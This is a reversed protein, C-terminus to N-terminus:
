DEFVLPPLHIIPGTLAEYYQLQRPGVWVVKGMRQGKTKFAPLRLVHRVVHVVATLRENPFAICVICYHAHAPVRRWFDSVNTTVFTPQRVRRLIAPIAEDKIITDPRLATISLVRGRYWAAIRTIMGQQHINEDLVIM